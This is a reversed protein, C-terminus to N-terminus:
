WVFVGFGEVGFCRGVTSCQLSAPHGSVGKLLRVRSGVRARMATLCSRRKRVTAGYITSCLVTPRM